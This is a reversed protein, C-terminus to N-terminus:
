RGYARCVPSTVLIEMYSAAGGAEGEGERRPAYLANIKFTLGRRPCAGGLDLRGSAGPEVRSTENLVQRVRGFKPDFERELHRWCTIRSRTPALDGKGGDNTPPYISESEEKGNSDEDLDRGQLMKRTTKLGAFAVV